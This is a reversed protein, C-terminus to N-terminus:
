QCLSIATNPLSITFTMLWGDLLNTNWETVQNLSADGEVIINRSEFDQIMKFWMRNLVALTENMNDIENDQKNFKDGVDNKNSNRVQASLIELDFTIMQGNSFGATLVDVHVLNFVNMKDFDVNAMNGQTVTNVFEDQEALGKVYNLLESYHNLGIAM